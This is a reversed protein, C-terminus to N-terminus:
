FSEGADEIPGLGHKSVAVERWHIQDDPVVPDRGQDIKLSGPKGMRQEVCGPESPDHAMM